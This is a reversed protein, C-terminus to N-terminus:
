YLFAAVWDFLTSGDTVTDPNTQWSLSYPAEPEIVAPVRVGQETSQSPNLDGVHYHHIDYHLYHVFKDVSEAYAARTRRAVQKDSAFPDSRLSFVPDKKGTEVLLPRPAILAHLDSLDVYDRLDSHLGQWCRHRNYTLLGLDTSYGAPLIMAFRTDLAGALTTIEGGMSLGTVLVRAPDVYPLSLLYDLGRLADWTREGDEEWDSDFGSAKVSPHTGNGHRPDDGEPREDYAGRRDGVPRHSIDIALVVFGRRAFADGYWDVKPNMVEHASSGHGNLALLAPYRVGQNSPALPTALYGHSRRTLPAGGYPNPLTYDFELDALEYNPLWATPDDDRYPPLDLSPIPSQNISVMHVRSTLPDPGGGMMLHRLQRRTRTQWVARADPTKGSLGFSLVEARAGSWSYRTPVAGHTFTGSIKRGRAIGTYVQMTGPGRRTFQLNTGDWRTVDLDYELEETEKTALTGYYKMRGIFQTPNGPARDIRLRGRFNGNALVEYVRPVIDRDLYASNWGTVHSAYDTLQAPRDSSRSNHSFRGVFVGEVVTGRYWQRPPRRFELRRSTPDWRINDLRETAGWGEDVLTGEYVGRAAERITATLPFKNAILYWTGTPGSADPLDEGDSARDQPYSSQRFDAAWAGASLATLLLFLSLGANLSRHASSLFRHVAISNRM